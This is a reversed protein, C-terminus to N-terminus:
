VFSLGFKPITNRCLLRGDKLSFGFVVKRLMKAFATFMQSVFSGQDVRVGKFLLIRLEFDSFYLMLWSLEDQDESSTVM